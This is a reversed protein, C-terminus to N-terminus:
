LPSSAPPPPPPSPPPSSPLPISTATALPSSVPSKRSRSWIFLAVVLAILTGGLLPRYFMWSIAITLLSLLVSVLGSLLGIGWTGITGLMPLIDLVRTIPAFVMSLGLWMSLAGGARVVWTIFSNRTQAGEFMKDAPVAGSEVLLVSRGNRTTYSDLENGSQRAVISFQAEPQFEFRVRVDGVEPQEPGAGQYLTGGGVHRFAEFAQPFRIAAQPELKRWNGVAARTATALTFAGMTTTQAQFKESQLPWETPNEHMGPHRFDSSDVPDDDWDMAYKYETVTESGGGLKKEERTHRSEQWQYMEVIRRLGLGDVSVGLKSDDIAPAGDVRASVHLLRGENVVEVSDTAVHVVAGAAENLAQHEGIARGENWWLLPFAAIFMLGGIIAGSISETFRKGFGKRTVETYSDRAM